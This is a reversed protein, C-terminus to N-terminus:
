FVSSCAPDTATAIPLFSFPCFGRLRTCTDFLQDFTAKAKEMQLNCLM